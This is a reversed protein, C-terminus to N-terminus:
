SAKKSKKAYKGYGMKKFYADRAIELKKKHAATIKKPGRKKGSAKKMKEVTKAVAKAGNAGFAEKATLKKSPQPISEVVANDVVAGTAVSSVLKRRAEEGLDSVMSRLELAVETLQVSQDKLLDRFSTRFTNLNQNM